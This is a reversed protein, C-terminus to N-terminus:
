PLFTRVINCLLIYYAKLEIYSIYVSKIWSLVLIKKKSNKWLIFRYTAKLILVFFNKAPMNHMWSPILLYRNCRSFLISIRNVNQSLITPMSIYFLFLVLTFNVLSNMCSSVTTWGEIFYAHKFSYSFLHRYNCLM